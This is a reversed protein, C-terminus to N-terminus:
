KRRNKRVVRSWHALKVTRLLFRHLYASGVNSSGWDSIADHLSIFFLAILSFSICLAEERRSKAANKERREIAESIISKQLVHYITFDAFPGERMSITENHFSISVAQLFLANEKGGERGLRTNYLVM